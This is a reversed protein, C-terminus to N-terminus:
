KAEMQEAAPFRKGIDDTGANGSCYDCASLRRTAITRFKQQKEERSTDDFLDVYDAPEDPILGLEMGRQSRSCWHIKGDRTRWNGGMDRTVACNKFRSCLVEESNNQKEWAGFDVWGGFSQDDGYYKEIKLTAGTQKLLEITNLEREPNIGYRSVQVVINDKYKDLVSLLKDNPTVTGNTFLMFRDFKSRYNMCIETLEALQPHLFPEGGGSLHLTNVHDVTNFLAEVIRSCDECSIDEFPKNQPVYECCLRCRLNCRTTIIVTLKNLTFDNMYKDMWEKEFDQIHDCEYFETKVERLKRVLEDRIGYCDSIKLSSIKDVMSIWFSYEFYRWAPAKGPFKSCLAKTRERYVALYENLIEPTLLKHNQTWASNNNEHRNVNYKKLGCYAAKNINGMIEPMLYIDDFRSEENFRKNDFLYSRMLKAPFGVGFRQRSLMTEVAEEANMVLQDPDDKNKTGCISIDADNEILLGLLFELFDPEVWDDDDIFVIYDGQAAELATNRGAGISGRERRIVRVRSDKKAYEEAIDGSSDSSGNDVIIFEFERYTQSLISEIARGVLKERNYTLMLVSIM